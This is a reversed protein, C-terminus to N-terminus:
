VCRTCSTRRTGSSTSAAAGGAARRPASTGRRRAGMRYARQPCLCRRFSAGLRLHGHGCAKRVQGGGAAGAVRRVRLQMADPPPVVRPSVQWEPLVKVLAGGESDLLLLWGRWRVVGHAKRGVHEIMGALKPLGGAGRPPLVLRVLTSQASDCDAPCPTGSM